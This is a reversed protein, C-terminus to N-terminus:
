AADKGSESEDSPGDLALWDPLVVAKMSSRVGGKQPIKDLQTIGQTALEIVRCLALQVESRDAGETLLTQVEGSQYLMECTTRWLDTPVHSQSHM